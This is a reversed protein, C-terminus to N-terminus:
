GASVGNLYAVALAGRHAQDPASVGASGGLHLPYPDADAVRRDRVKRRRNRLPSGTQIQREPARGNHVLRWRGSEDVLGRMLPSSRRRGRGRDGADANARAGERLIALLPDDTVGSEQGRCASLPIRRWPTDKQTLGSPVMVSFVSERRLWWIRGYGEEVEGMQEDSSMLPDRLSAAGTAATNQQLAGRPTSLILSGNQGDAPRTSGRVAGPQSLRARLPTQTTNYVEDIFRPLDATVDEFTEYAALYVAEVKLTKM